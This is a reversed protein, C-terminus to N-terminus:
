KVGWGKLFERVAEKAADHAVTAHEPLFFYEKRAQTTFKTNTIITSDKTSVLVLTVAADHLPMSRYSTEMIDLTCILLADAHRLEAREFLTRSAHPDRVDLGACMTDHSIITQFRGSRTLLNFITTDFTTSVKEYVALAAENTSYPGIAITKIFSLAPDINGKRTTGVSACSLGIAACIFVFFTQKM